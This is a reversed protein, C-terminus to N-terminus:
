HSRVDRHDISSIDIRSYRTRLQIYLPNGPYIKWAWTELFVKGIRRISNETTKFYGVLGTVRHYGVGRISISLPAKVFWPEDELKGHNTLPLDLLIM